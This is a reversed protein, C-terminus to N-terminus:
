SLERRMFDIFARVKAPLNARSAYVAHIPADDPIVYPELIPVLEGRRVAADVIYSGTQIIGLGAHTAKLLSEADNAVFNGDVTVTERREGVQFTWENFVRSGASRVLCNHERLEAPTNPIGHRGLYGPTAVVIRQSTLLRTAVLTADALPGSRVALDIGEEVLDVMADSLMLDLTIGPYEALFKPVLDVIHAHGFTISAAVRLRGRPTTNLQATVRETDEIQELIDASRRFYLEGAETLSLRRTTRHLLRIGLRDELAKIRRSVASSTLQLADAARVFSGQEVVTVFVAM